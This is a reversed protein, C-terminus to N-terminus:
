KQIIYQIHVESYIPLIICRLTFYEAHRNKLSDQYKYLFKKILVTLLMSLISM